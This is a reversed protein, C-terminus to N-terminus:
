NTYHKSVVHNAYHGADMAAKCNKPYDDFLLCKGKPFHSTKCEDHPVYIFGDFKFRYKEELLAVSERKGWKESGELGLGSLKTCIKFKVHPHDQRIRKLIDFMEHTVVQIPELEAWFNVPNRTYVRRLFFNRIFAPLSDLTQITCWEGFRRLERNIGGTWNVLTNDLDVLVYDVDRM